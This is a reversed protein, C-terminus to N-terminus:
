RWLVQHPQIAALHAPSPPVGPPAPPLLTQALGEFRGGAEFGNPLMITPRLPQISPQVATPYYPYYQVPYGIYGPYGAAAAYMAAAPSYMPLQQSLAPIAQHHQLQEYPPPAYVGGAGAGAGGFTVGYPSGGAVTVDRTVYQPTMHYHDGYQPAAQHPPAPLFPGQPPQPQPYAGLPPTVKKDAM